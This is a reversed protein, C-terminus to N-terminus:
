LDLRHQFQAVVHTNDHRLSTRAPPRSRRNRYQPVRCARLAGDLVTQVGIGFLPAFGHRRGPERRSSRRIRAPTATRTRRRPADLWLLRRPRLGLIQQRDLVLRGRFSRRWQRRQAGQLVGDTDEALPHRTSRTDVFASIREPQVRRRRAPRRRVGAVQQAGLRRFAMVSATRHQHVRIALRTTRRFRRRPQGSGDHRGASLRHLEDAFAPSALTGALALVGLVMAKRM